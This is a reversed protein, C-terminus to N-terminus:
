WNRIRTVLANTDFDDINTKMESCAVKAKICYPEIKSCYDVILAHIDICKQHSDGQWSKSNLKNGISRLDSLLVGLETNASDLYTVADSITLGFKFTEQM